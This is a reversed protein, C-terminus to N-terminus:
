LVVPYIRNKDCVLLPISNSSEGRPSPTDTSLLPTHMQFGSPYHYCSNGVLVLSLYCQVKSTNDVENPHSNNHPSVHSKDVQDIKWNSPGNTNCPRSQFTRTTECM